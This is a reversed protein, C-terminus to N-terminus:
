ENSEGMQEKMRANQKSAIDKLDEEAMTQFVKDFESMGGPEEEQFIDDMNVVSEPQQRLPGLIPEYGNTRARLVFIAGIVVGLLPFLGGIILFLIVAWILDWFEFVM